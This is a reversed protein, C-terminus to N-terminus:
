IRDTGRRRAQRPGYRDLHTPDALFDVVLVLGAGLIAVTVM